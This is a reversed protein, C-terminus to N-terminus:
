QQDNVDLARSSADLQPHIVELMPGELWSWFDDTTRMTHFNVTSPVVTFNDGAFSADLLAANLSHSADYSTVVRRRYFLCLTVFVVYIIHFFLKCCTTCKEALQKSDPSNHSLSRFKSRQGAYRPLHFLPSLEENIMRRWEKILSMSDDDEDIDEMDDDDDSNYGGGGGGGRGGGAQAAKDGGRMRSSASSEAGSGGGGGGGGGGSSRGGGGGGGGQHAATDTPQRSVLRVQPTEGDMKKREALHDSITAQPPWMVNHADRLTGFDVNVGWYRCADSCLQEFTYTATLQFSAFEHVREYNVSVQTLQFDDAERTGSSSSTASSNNGAPSSGDPDALRQAVLSMESILENICDKASLGELLSQADSNDLVTGDVSAAQADESMVSLESRLAAIEKDNEEIEQNAQHLRERLREFNENREKYQETAHNKEHQQLDQEENLSAIEKEKRRIQTELQASM